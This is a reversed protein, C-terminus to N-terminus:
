NFFTSFFAPDDLSTLQLDNESSSDITSWKSDCTDELMMQNPSDMVRCVSPLCVPPMLETVPSKHAALVKMESGTQASLPKLSKAPLQTHGHM